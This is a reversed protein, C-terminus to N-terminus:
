NQRSSLMGRVFISSDLDQDLRLISFDLNELLEGVKQCDITVRSEAISRVEQHRCIKECHTSFNSDTKHPRDTVLIKPDTMLQGSGM